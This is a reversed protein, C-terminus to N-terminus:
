PLAEGRQDAPVAPRGTLFIEGLQQHTISSTKGSWVILGLRLVLARQSVELAKRTNQEVLLVTVGSANLRQIENFVAAISKPALGISPEDILLLRPRHIVAMAIELMQQEGGSLNGALQHRRDAILPFLEYCREREVLSDARSRGHMVVDLNEEVSMLPFNCRGQPVYAIGAGLLERPSLGKLERGEFQVSGGMWTTFGFITRLVTSKGAGNPGLLCVFAGAPLAFDVGRVIELEGYGARMRESVLVPADAV